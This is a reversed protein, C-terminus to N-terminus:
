IIKKIENIIKDSTITKTCEFQKDTGKNVPCWNWDGPDLRSTNFCGNCVSDEANIRICDSMETYSKSFGSILIVPINCAWALWSIGSGVGIFLRSARLEKIMNDLSYDTLTTIGKPNVNGMYGDEERSLLIPTGVNKDVYDVVEQWGTPNNWYKAQATSHIGLTVSAKKRVKPFNIKPKVEKYKLGLIDSATKQMPQPKPDLPQRYLNIDNNNYFWGIEYKAVINPVVTGPNVFELDPYKGEFLSNLFTSVIVKCKHKKRFEEAYPFWAITDGLSKSELSIYVRQDKLNIKETEILEGNKYVEIRWDIFYKYNCKSWNNNKILSEYLIENTKNNIFKIGYDAVEETLIEVFPGDVYNINIKINSDLQDVESYITKSEKQIEKNELSSELLDAKEQITLNNLYSVRNDFEGKYTHLDYCFVKIGDYGIAEKLAIPMLELKSCFYVADAFKYFFDVDDKEDHILVNRPKDQMLPEWYDKFNVAQNGVFHFRYKPLLRAIEFLEAQNKGPTFLGVNLIDKGIKENDKVSKKNEIPYEWIDTVLNLADFKQRSWKSVLVYKDAKYVIDKPDTYSSHTTVLIKYNRKIRFINKLIDESIFTEPMEQFHIYDPSFKEIHNIIESKDEGLKIIPVLEGIKKRQVEYHGYDNYEVVQIEFDNKFSEILKLTYQPM